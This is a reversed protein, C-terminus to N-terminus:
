GQNKYFTCGGGLWLVAPSGVGQQRKRMQKNHRTVNLFNSRICETGGKFPDVIRAAM